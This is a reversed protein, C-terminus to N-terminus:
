NVAFADNMFARLQVPRVPKALVVFGAERAAQAAPQGPNGTVLVAPLHGGARERLQLTARCGDDGDPLCLDAVVFEPIRGASAQALAERASVAQWVECGWGRLLLAMANSSPLHDEIVLVRRGHLRDTQAEAAHAAM